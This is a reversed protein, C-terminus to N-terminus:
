HVHRWTHAGVVGDALGGMWGMHLCTYEPMLWTFVLFWYMSSLKWYINDMYVYLLCATHTHTETNTFAFTCAQMYTHIYTRVCAHVYTQIYKLICRHRGTTRDTPRESQRGPQRNIQIYAHCVYKCVYICLMRVDDYMKKKRRPLSIRALREQWVNQVHPEAESLQSLHLIFFCGEIRALM